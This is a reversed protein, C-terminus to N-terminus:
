WLTAYKHSFYNFCECFFCEMHLQTCIPPKWHENVRVGSNKKRGVTTLARISKIFIATTWLIDCIGQYKSRLLRPPCNHWPIIRLQIYKVTSPDIHLTSKFCFTPKWKRSWVWIAFNMPGVHPGGPVQRGWIPVMNAVHVKSDPCHRYDYTDCKNAVYQM